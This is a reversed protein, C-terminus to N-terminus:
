QSYDQNALQMQRLWQKVINLFLEQSLKQFIRLISNVIHLVVICGPSLIECNYLVFVMSQGLSIISRENKLALKAM